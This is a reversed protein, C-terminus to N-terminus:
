RCRADQSRPQRPGRSARRRSAPCRLAEGAFTVPIRFRPRRKGVRGRGGADRHCVKTVILAAVAVHTVTQEPAGADGRFGRGLTMM